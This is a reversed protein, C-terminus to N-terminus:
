WPRGDNVDATLANAPPTTGNPTTTTAPTDTDRGGIPAHSVVGGPANDPANDRHTVVGPIPAQNHDIASWKGGPGHQRATGAEQLLTLARRVTQDGKSRNVARCLDAGTMPTGNATLTALIEDALQERVTPGNEAGREFPDAADITVHEGQARLHLWREAPEADIRMKGGRAGDAHLSRRTRAEPDKEDRGLVFLMDTQDRLVSSGRYAAGSNKPRHHLLVIAAGTQRAALRVARMVPAVTDGNNEELQPALSRLSDLVVLQAEEQRITERLWTAGAETALDISEAEYIAVNKRPGAAARYRRAILREGNEGDIYLARGQACDIGAIQNGTAVGIAFALATWSKGDGGHGALVTVFGDAAFRDVRYPIPALPADLLADLDLRRAPTHAPTSTTARARAYADQFLVRETAEHDPHVNLAACYATFAIEDDRDELACARLIAARAEDRRAVGNASM